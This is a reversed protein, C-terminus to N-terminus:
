LVQGGRSVSLGTSAAGAKRHSFLRGKAKAPRAAVAAAPAAQRNKEDAIHHRNLYGDLVRFGLRIVNVLVWYFAAAMVIPTFPDYTREFLENAVATLDIVTIVSVVATGKTFMVVENQYAKLGYRVALPLRIWTFSERPTLGLAASAELLGAPVAELSGRVVEVMYAVHNLTLGIVACCFANGLIVWFPGQRVGAIQGFGYYVLYLLILLPAGRFFVVFAGASWSLLPNKSMRALTVPISLLLGLVLVIATLLTTTMLGGLMAPFSERALSLDIPLANM